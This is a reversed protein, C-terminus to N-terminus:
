RERCVSGGCAMGSGARVQLSSSPIPFVGNGVLGDLYRAMDSAYYERDYNGDILQADFFYSHIAMNLRRRHESRPFLRM